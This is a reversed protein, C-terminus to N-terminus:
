NERYTFISNGNDDNSKTIIILRNKYYAEWCDNALTRWCSDNVKKKIFEIAKDESMTLQSYACVYKPKLTENDIRFKYTITKYDMQYKLTTNDSFILKCNSYYSLTKQVNHKSKGFMLDQALSQYSLM